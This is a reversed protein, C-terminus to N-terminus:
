KAGESHDGGLGTTRKVDRWEGWELEEWRQGDDTIQVRRQVRYQLKEPVRPSGKNARGLKVRIEIDNIM